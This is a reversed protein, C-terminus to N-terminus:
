NLFFKILKWKFKIRLVIETCTKGHVVRNFCDNSDSQRNGFAKIDANLLHMNHESSATTEHHNINNIGNTPIDYHESYTSDNYISKSINNYDYGSHPIIINNGETYNADLSSKFTYNTSHDITETVTEM